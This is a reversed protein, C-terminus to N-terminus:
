RSLTRTVAAAIGRHSADSSFHKAFCETARSAMEARQAAGTSLWHGLLDLVGAATDPAVFGAGADAIERWINVRDSILVPVGCALAEVLALGFNESHSPLVFADAARFAGWKADGELMGTWAIRDAIGLQAARARLEKGWGEDDPGVFVLQALPHERCVRAFGDVLLDCGKKRHIRGLFLLIRKGELGPLAEMFAAQQRARGSPPAATGFGVVLERAQYLWFSERALRREEECTFLVGSSDRLVRYDAWPWYLWKKAHKFPYHRKFWPDLMGHPFVFYPTAGHRLARWAGYAHFQWLGHVIVADFRSANARLWPVLRPSYAYRLFAPGLLHCQVSASAAWETGDADLVAVEASDGAALAAICLQRVAESTGGM